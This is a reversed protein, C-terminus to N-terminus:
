GGLRLRQERKVLTPKRKPKKRGGKSAELLGKAEGATWPQGELKGERCRTTKKENGDIEKGNKTWQAHGMFGEKKREELGAKGKEKCGLRYEVARAGVHSKKVGACGMKIDRGQGLPM